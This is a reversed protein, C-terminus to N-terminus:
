QKPAQEAPGVTENVAQKGSNISYAESLMGESDSASSKTAYDKPMESDDNIHHSGRPSEARNIDTSQPPESTHVLSLTSQETDALAQSGESLHHYVKVYNETLENVLSSTKSFHDSVSSKYQEFEQELSQKEDKLKKTQRNDSGKLSRILIGIGIGVVLGILAFFWPSSLLEM